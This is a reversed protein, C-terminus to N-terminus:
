QERWEWGEGLETPETAFLVCGPKKSHPEYIIRGIGDECDDMGRGIIIEADPNCEALIEMLDRVTVPDCIGATYACSNGGRYNRKIMLSM